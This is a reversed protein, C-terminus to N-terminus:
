KTSISEIIKVAQEEDWVEEDEVLVFMTAEGKRSKFAGTVQRVNKGDSTGKNFTFEREVGDIMFTRKESEEVDINKNKGQTDMQQEFSKELEEKSGKIPIEMLIITGSSPNDVRQYMVMNMSAVLIKAKVGQGPQYTDPIEISVIEEQMKSVEAPTQVIQFANKAFFFFVGCCAICSIGFIALLAILIKTGTSMGSRPEAESM